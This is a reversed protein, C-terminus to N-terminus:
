QRARKYSSSTNPLRFGANLGIRGGMQLFAMYRQLLREEEDKDGKLPVAMASALRFALATVFYAPFQGANTIRKTYILAAQYQDTLIAQQGSVVAQEFPIKDDDHAKAPNYIERPVLCDAPLLYVYDWREDTASLESLIVPNTRAFPWNLVSLVEDRCAAYHTFCERAQRTAANPSIASVRDEGIHSLALNCIEVESAM